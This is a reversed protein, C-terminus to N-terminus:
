EWEVKDCLKENQHFELFHGDPKSSHAKCPLFYNWYYKSHLVQKIKTAYEKFRTAFCCCMTNKRRSTATEEIRTPSPQM